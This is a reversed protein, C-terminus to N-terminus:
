VRAECIWMREIRSRTRAMNVVHGATTCTVLTRRCWLLALTMTFTVCRTPVHCDMLLYKERLGFDDRQKSTGDLDPRLEAAAIVRNMPVWNCSGNRLKGLAAEQTISQDVSGDSSVVDCTSFADEASALLSKEAATRDLSKVAMAAADTTIASKMYCSMDGSNAAKIRVAASMFCM